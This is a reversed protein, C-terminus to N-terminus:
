RVIRFRTLSPASRNGAADTARIVARYRGARLARRGIRGTFRIRNGGELGGRRLTGVTRYRNGSRRKVKITVRANESLTYRLITGRRARAATPTAARAVAFASRTSRFSSILPAQTDAAPGGSPGGGSPPGAQAPQLEFAGLDRRAIGDSDADAVRPDGNLDLGQPSAPDGADILPSDPLLSYEHGLAEDFGASGVNSVHSETIKAGPGLPISQSSDYDSYLASITGTGGVGASALLPTYGRVISNSLSLHVSRSPDPATSVAIGGTDPQYPPAYVTLGDATVDTDWGVATQARLVTGVNAWLVLLSNTISIDSGQALVPLSGATVRSRELVSPGMLRAGNEARIVSGRVVSPGAAPGGNALIVGTTNDGIDLTVSSDELLGGESLAAGYHPHTQVPDETVEVRRARASTFLGTFSDAVERPIHVTLDHMTTGAPGELSVVGGAANPQATLVTQGRGKGVIELPSNKAYTFPSQGAPAAYTHTGLLIRDPEDTGAAVNLASQLTKVNNTGCSENPYVCYDAASALSPLAACAVATAATVTALGLFSMGFPDGPVTATVLAM